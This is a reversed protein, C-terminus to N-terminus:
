YPSTFQRQLSDNFLGELWPNVKCDIVLHVRRVSSRNAARHTLRLDLYWCEGLAM